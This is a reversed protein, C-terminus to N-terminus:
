ANKNEIYLNNILVRNTEGVGSSQKDPSFNIGTIYENNLVETQGFISNALPVATLYGDTFLTTSDSTLKIGNLYLNACLELSGARNVYEFVIQVTHWSGDQIRYNTDISTNTFALSTNTSADGTHDWGGSNYVGWQLNAGGGTASTGNIKLRAVEANSSTSNNAYIKITLATESANTAKVDFSIISQNGAARSATTFKNISNSTSSSLDRGISLVTDSETNGDPNVVLSNGTGFKWDSESDELNTRYDYAAASFSKIWKPALDLDQTVVTTTDFIVHSKTDSDYMMWSPLMDEDNSSSTLSGSPFQVTRGANVVQNKLSADVTEKISTTDLTVIYTEVAEWVATLTLNETVTQTFDYPVDNLKWGTIEFGERFPLTAMEPNTATGGEGVSQSTVNVGDSEYGTTFTVTFASTAWLANLTMDKTVAEDFEYKSGQYQWEVFTNGDTHTPDTPKSVKKGENITQTEVHSGKSGTNFEVDYTTTEGCAALTLLSTTALSAVLLKKGIKM